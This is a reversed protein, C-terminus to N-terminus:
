ALPKDTWRSKLNKLMQHFQKLLATQLTQRWAFGFYNLDQCYKREFKDSKIRLPTILLLKSVSIVVCYQKSVCIYHHFISRAFCYLIYYLILVLFLTSFFFYLNYILPPLRLLLPYLFFPAILAPTAGVEWLSHYTHRLQRLMMCPTLRRFVPKHWTM